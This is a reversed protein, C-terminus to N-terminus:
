LSTQSIKSAIRCVCVCVCVCVCLCLRLCLCLPVFVRLCARVQCDALRQEAVAAREGLRTTERRLYENDKNLLQDGTLLHM